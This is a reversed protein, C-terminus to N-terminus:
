GAPAPVASDGAPEAAFGSSVILEDLMAGFVAEAPTGALIGADAALMGATMATLVLADSLGGAPGIRDLMAGFRPYDVAVQGWAEALRPGQVALVVGARRRRRGV